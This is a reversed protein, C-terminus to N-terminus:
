QPCAVPNGSSDLCAPACSIPIGTPSTCNLPEPSLPVSGLQFCAQTAFWSMIGLILIWLIPNKKM